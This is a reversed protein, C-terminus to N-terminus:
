RLLRNNHKSIRMSLQVEQPVIQIVESVNNTYSVLPKKRIEKYTTVPDMIYNENCNM